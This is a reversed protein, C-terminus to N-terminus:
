FIKVRARKVEEAVFGEVCVGKAIVRESERPQRKLFVNRSEGNTSWDESGRM